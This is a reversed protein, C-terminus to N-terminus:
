FSGQSANKEKGIVSESRLQIQTFKGKGEELLVDTM